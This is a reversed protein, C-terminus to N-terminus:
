LPIDLRVGGPHTFQFTYSIIRGLHFYQRVGGPHTFQFGLDWIARNFLFLDCGERTRSNFSNVYFQAKAQNM